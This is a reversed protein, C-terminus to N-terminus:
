NGGNNGHGSGSTKWTDKLEPCWDIWHGKKKGFFCTGKWTSTKYNAKVRNAVEVRRQHNLEESQFAQLIKDKDLSDLLLLSTSFHNYKGPLAQILAM